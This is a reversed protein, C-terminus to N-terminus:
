DKTTKVEETPTFTGTEMNLQGDGYKKTINDVFSKEEAQTISYKEILQAEINDFNEQDKQLRLKSMGLQGFTNQIGNYTKQFESIKKMEDETFKVAEPM